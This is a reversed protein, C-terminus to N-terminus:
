TDHIIEGKKFKSIIYGKKYVQISLKGKCHPCRIFLLAKLPDKIIKM